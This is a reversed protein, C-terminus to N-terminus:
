SAKSKFEMWGLLITMNLFQLISITTWVIHTIKVVNKQRSVSVASYLEKSGQLVVWISLLNVHYNTLFITDNVETSHM